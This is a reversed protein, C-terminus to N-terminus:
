EWCRKVENSDRDKKFVGRWDKRSCERECLTCIDLAKDTHNGKHYCIYDVVIKDDNVRPNVYGNRRLEAFTEALISSIDPSLKAAFEKWTTFDKAKGWGMLTKKIMDEYNGIIEHPTKQAKIM